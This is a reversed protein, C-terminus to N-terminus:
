ERGSKTEKAEYVSMETEESDGLENVRGLSDVKTTVSGPRIAPLTRTRPRGCSTRENHPVFCVM